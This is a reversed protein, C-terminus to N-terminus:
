MLELIEADDFHEHLAELDADGIDHHEAAMREAFEVAAREAPTYEPNAAFDDAWIGTAQEEPITDAALRAAQCTKCGNLVAIRLRVLEKMRPTLEEALTIRAM